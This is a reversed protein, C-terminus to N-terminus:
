GRGAHFRVHLARIEETLEPVPGDVTVGPAIDRVPLARVPAAPVDLETLWQSLQRSSAVYVIRGLGVWAHAAACMPCHEGSTYVTAAAREAPDLHEAAWRALAFEPHRTSDGSAIRNRDEALVTGDAGALVSGFPEDGAALAEAALEVCRRLLPLETDKVTM